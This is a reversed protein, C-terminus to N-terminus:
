GSTKGANLLVLPLEWHCSVFLSAPADTPLYVQLAAPSARRQAASRWAASVISDAARLALVRLAVRETAAEQNQAAALIGPM